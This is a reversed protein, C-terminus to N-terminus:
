KLPMKIVEIKALKCAEEVSFYSPQLVFLRQFGNQKLYNVINIIALTSNPLIMCTQSDLYTGILKKIIANRTIKPIDYTYVYKFIDTVSQPSLCKMIMEMYANSPNWHSINTIPKNLGSSINKEIEFINDLFFIDEIFM